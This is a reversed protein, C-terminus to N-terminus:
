RPARRPRPLHQRYWNVADTVADAMPRAQWGLETRAKSTDMEKFVHSLLVSDTCLQMDRRGFLAALRQYCWAIGYAVGLPLRRPASRGASRAAMGYLEAQELYSGAIIYREGIRGRREALVLAAAADRVDVCPSGCDLALPLRGTAAEWLLRGHPTPQVDEPGYTNAVCLAIGPLGRERCYEFLKQEAAVRSLVYAPAREAWNFADSERAPGRSNLGITAISSTFVFRRVGSRLAEEMSNVLGDVNCRYLPAPDTLWARTDVVCHFVTDCGQMAARLSAPELVDGYYVEVPLEALADLRSTHRVLVRVTRGQAVLAKVVHSGLFGSAGVVLARVAGPNSHLDAAM